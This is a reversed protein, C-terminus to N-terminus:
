SEGRGREARISKVNQRAEVFSFSMGAHTFEDFSHIWWWLGNASKEILGVGDSFRKRWIGDKHRGWGDIRKTAKDM